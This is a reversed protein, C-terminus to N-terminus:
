FGHKRLINSAEMDSVPTVLGQPDLLYGNGRLWDEWKQAELGQTQQEMAYKDYAVKMAKTMGPKGAAMPNLTEPM